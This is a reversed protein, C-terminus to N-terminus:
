VRSIRSNDVTIATVKRWQEVGHIRGTQLDLFVEPEPNGCQIAV